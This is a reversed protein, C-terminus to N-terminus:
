IEETTRIIDKIAKTRAGPDAEPYMRCRTKMNEQGGKIYFSDEQETMCDHGVRQSGVSKLM